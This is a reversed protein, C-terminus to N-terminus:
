GTRFARELHCLLDGPLVVRVQAGVLVLVVQGTAPAPQQMAASHSSARLAKREKTFLQSGVYIHLSQASDITFHAPLPSPGPDM